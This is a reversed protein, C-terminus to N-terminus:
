IHSFIIQLGNANRVVNQLDMAKKVKSLAPCWLACDSLYYIAYKVNGEKYILPSGGSYNTIALEPPVAFPARNTSSSGVGQNSISYQSKTICRM